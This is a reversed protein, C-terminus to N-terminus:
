ARSKEHPPDRCHSAPRPLPAIRAEDHRATAPAPPRVVQEPLPREVARRVPDRDRAEVLPVLAALDLRAHLVSGIEDPPGAHPGPPHAGAGASAPVSPISWAAWSSRRAPL